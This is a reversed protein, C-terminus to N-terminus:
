KIAASPVPLPAGGAWEAKARGQVVGQGEGRALTHGRQERVMGVVAQAKGAQGAEVEPVQAQHWPCTAIRRSHGPTQAGALPPTSSPTRCPPPQPRRLSLWAMDVVGWPPM